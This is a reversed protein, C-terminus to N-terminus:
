AKEATSLRRCLNINDSEGDTGYWHINYMPIVRLSNKSIQNYQNCQNSKLNLNMRVCHFMNQKTLLVWFKLHIQCLKWLNFFKVGPVKSICGGLAKHRRRSHTFVGSDSQNFHHCVNYLLVGVSVIKTKFRQSFKAVASISIFSNSRPVPLEVFKKKKKKKMPNQCLQNFIRYKRKKLTGHCCFTGSPTQFNCSSTSIQNQGTKPSSM